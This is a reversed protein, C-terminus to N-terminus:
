SSSESEEVDSNEIITNVTPLQHQLNINYNAEDEETSKIDETVDILATFSINKFIKLILKLPLYAILAFWVVIISTLLPSMVLGIIGALQGTFQISGINANVPAGFLGIYLNNSV